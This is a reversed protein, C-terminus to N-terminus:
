APSWPKRSVRAIDPPLMFVAVLDDLRIVPFKSKKM